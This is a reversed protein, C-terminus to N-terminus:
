QFDVFEIILLKAKKHGVIPSNGVPLHLRKVEEEAGLCVGSLLFFLSVVLILKLKPM